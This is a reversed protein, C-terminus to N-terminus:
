SKKLDSKYKKYMFYAIIGVLTIYLGGLLWPIAQLSQIDKNDQDSVGTLLINARLEQFAILSKFIVTFVFTGVIFVITLTLILKPGQLEIM